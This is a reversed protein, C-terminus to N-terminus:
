NKRDLDFDYSRYEVRHQPENTRTSGREDDEWAYNFRVFVSREKSLAERPVSFIVSVGPSLLSVSFSDFPSIHRQGDREHVDFLLSIEQDNEVYGMRKVWEAPKENPKRKPLYMSFTRFRIPWCTNNHFRLWVDNGKQKSNSADSPEMLRTDLPNVAKGLHEFTLYVGPQNKDIRADKSADCPSSSQSLGVTSATLLVIISTLLKRM